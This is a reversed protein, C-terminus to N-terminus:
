SWLHSRYKIINNLHKENQERYSEGLQNISDKMIERYLAWEYAEKMLFYVDKYEDVKEVPYRLASQQAMEWQYRLTEEGDDNEWFFILGKFAIDEMIFDVDIFERPICDRAWQNSPKFRLKINRVWRKLKYKLYLPKM